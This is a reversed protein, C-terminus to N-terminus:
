PFTELAVSLLTQNYCCDNNLMVSGYFDSIMVNFYKRFYAAQFFYVLWTTGASLLYLM